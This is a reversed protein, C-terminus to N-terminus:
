IRDMNFDLIMKWRYIINIELIIEFELEEVIKLDTNRKKAEINV